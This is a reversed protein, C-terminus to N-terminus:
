ARPLTFCFMAGPGKHEEVWIRGEHAEIITRSIALGLGTGTPKTTVFANFIQERQDAPIGVGTDRVCVTIGGEVVQTSIVLEGGAEKMAEIGNVMLNM